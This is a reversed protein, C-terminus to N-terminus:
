LSQPGCQRIDDVDNRSTLVVLINVRIRGAKFIDSRFQVGLDDVKQDAGFLVIRSMARYSNCFTGNSRKLDLKPCDQVLDFFKPMLHPVLNLEQSCITQRPMSTSTRM